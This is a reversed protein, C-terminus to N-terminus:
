VLSCFHNPIVAHKSAEKRREAREGSKFQFSGASSKGDAKTSSVTQKLRHLFFETLTEFYFNQHCLAIGMINSCVQKTDPSCCTWDEQIFFVSSWNSEKDNTRKYQWLFSIIMQFTGIFSVYMKKFHLFYYNGKIRLM